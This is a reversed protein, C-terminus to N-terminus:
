SEQLRRAVEFFVTPSFLLGVHGVNPVVLVNEGDRAFARPLIINDSGGLISSFKVAHGRGRSLALRTMLPSDPRLEKGVRSAIWYSNYTGQHPTGLSICRGVRRFGGMEQIYTRAVVGGLSHCVLDIRGGRVKERLFDRLERAAREVGNRSRYNFSLAQTIGTSRLYTALPFFSSQNALYGHVFVVTRQNKRRPTRQANRAIGFPYILSWALCSLVERTM